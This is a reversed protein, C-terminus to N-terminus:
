GLFGRITALTILEQRISEDKGIKKSIKKLIRSVSSEICCEFGFSNLINKLKHSDIKLNRAAVEPVTYKADFEFDKMIEPIGDIIKEIGLEHCYYLELITPGIGLTYLSATFKIARPLKTGDIDRLYSSIRARNSPVQKAVKNIINYIRGLVKKWCSSLPKIFKLLDEDFNQRRGVNSKIKRIVRLYDERDTDFRLASQVTVTRYGSYAKVWTDINWEALHGRFPPKGVGIIPNAGADILESIAFRISITSAIHGNSLAVDSKGLFIRPTEVGRNILMKAYKKANIHEDISELLPIPIIKDEIKYEESIVKRFRYLRNMFADFEEINAMPLIIYKIAQGGYKASFINASIASVLSLLHRDPEELSPSPIRPTILFDKGPILGKVSLENIIWKMQHYPTLKGEYDVMKEDCGRGGKEIPMLDEIAEKVEESVSIEVTSDPHQTAMLVPIKVTIV